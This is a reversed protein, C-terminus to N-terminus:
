DTLLFCTKFEPPFKMGREYKTAEGYYNIFWQDPKLKNASIEIGTLKHSRENEDYYHYNFKKYLDIFEKICKNLKHIDKYTKLRKQIFVSLAYSLEKDHFCNHKIIFDKINQTNM